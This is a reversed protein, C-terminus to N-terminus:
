HTFIAKFLEVCINQDNTSDVLTMLFIFFTKSFSFTITNRRNNYKWPKSLNSYKISPLIVLLVSTFNKNLPKNQFWIRHYWRSLWHLYKRLKTLSRLPRLLISIKHILSFYSGISLEGLRNCRYWLHLLVMSASTLSYLYQKQAFVSFMICIFIECM